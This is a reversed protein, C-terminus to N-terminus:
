ISVINTTNLQQRQKYKQVHQTQIKFFIVFFYAALHYRAGRAVYKLTADLSSMAAYDDIFQHSFTAPLFSLMGDMIFALRSRHHEM